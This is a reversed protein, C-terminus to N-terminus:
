KKLEQYGDNCHLALGPEEWAMTGSWGSRM